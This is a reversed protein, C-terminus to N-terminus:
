QGQWKQKRRLNFVIGEVVLRFNTPNVILFEAGYKEVFFGSRTKTREHFSEGKKREKRSGYHSHSGKVDIVYRMNGDEDFIIFDPTYRVGDIDMKISEYEWRLCYDDLHRSFMMEYNSKLLLQRGDKTIGYKLGRSIQSESYGKIRLFQMVADRSCECKKAIFSLSRNLNFYMEVRGALDVRKRIKSRNKARPDIKHSKLIRQIVPSSIGYKIEIDKYSFGSMYLDAIEREKGSIPSYDSRNRIAINNSVLVDKILAPGIHLASAILKYSSGGQYMSIIEQDLSESKEGRKM